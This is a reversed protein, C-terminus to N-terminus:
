IYEISYLKDKIKKLDEKKDILITKTSTVLDIIYIEIDNEIKSIDKTIKGDNLFQRYTRDIWM